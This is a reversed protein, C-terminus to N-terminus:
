IEIPPASLYFPYTLTMDVTPQDVPAHQLETVVPSSSAPTTLTPQDTALDAMSVARETLGATLKHRDLPRSVATTAQRVDRHINKLWERHEALMADTSPGGGVRAGGCM